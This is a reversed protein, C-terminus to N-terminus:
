EFYIYFLVIFCCNYMGNFKSLYIATIRERNKDKWLGIPFNIAPSRIVTEGEKGVVSKGLEFIFYRM